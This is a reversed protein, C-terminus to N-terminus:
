NQNIVHSNTKNNTQKVKVTDKKGKEKKKKVNSIIVVISICFVM